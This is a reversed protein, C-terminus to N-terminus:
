KMTRVFAKEPCASTLVAFLSAAEGATATEGGSTSRTRLLACAEAAVAATPWVTSTPSRRRTSRHAAVPPLRRRVGAPLGPAPGQAGLRDCRRGLTALAELDDLTAKLEQNQAEAQM